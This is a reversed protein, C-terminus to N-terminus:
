PPSATAAPLTFRFTSGRGEESEVTIEGGHRQVIDRAIALGLGTGSLGESTPARVFRDFIRDVYEAPIGAGNDAVETVVTNDESYIRVEIEPKPEPGMYRVANGILNDLVQRIRRGDALAHPAGDEARVEVRIDNEKIAQAHEELVTKAVAKVDTPSQEVTMTEVALGDLLDKLFRETTESSASIQDLIRETDPDIERAALRKRLRRVLGAITIVPSKLDHAVMQVLSKLEDTRQKAETTRQKLRREVAKRETIDRIVGTFFRDAGVEWSSLSLELPFEEGSKRLGELEVTRGTLAPAGTELYRKLGETHPERFREPMLITVPQGIIEDPAYGFVEEAAKNWFIIRDDSDASVIADVASQALARFRSDGELLTDRLHDMEDDSKEQLRRRLSEVQKLLDVREKDADM